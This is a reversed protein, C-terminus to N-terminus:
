RRHEHGNDVGSAFRQVDAGVLGYITGSDVWLMAPRNAAAVLVKPDIRTSSIVPDAAEPAEEVSVTFAVTKDVGGVTAVM